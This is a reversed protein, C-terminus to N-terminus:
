ASPTSVTESGPIAEEGGAHGGIVDARDVVTVVRRQEPPVGRIRWEGPVRRHDHHVAREVVVM